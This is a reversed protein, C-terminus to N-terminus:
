LQGREFKRKFKRELIGRQFRRERQFRRRQIQKITRQRRRFFGKSDSTRHHHTFLLSFDTVYSKPTLFVPTSFPSGQKRKDEKTFRYFGDGVIKKIEKLKKEKEERDDDDGDEEDDSAERGRTRAAVGVTVGGYGSQNATAGAPILSQGHKGGRTVLTWEGEDEQDPNISRDKSKKVAAAHAALAAAASGPLPGVDKLKNKKSKKNNENAKKSTSQPTYTPPLAEM